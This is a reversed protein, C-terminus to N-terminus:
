WWGLIKTYYLAFVSFGILIAAILYKNHFIEGRMRARVDDEDDFLRKVDKYARERSPKNTENIIQLDGALDRNIRALHM